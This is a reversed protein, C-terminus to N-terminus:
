NYAAKKHNAIKLRVWRGSKPGFVSHLGLPVFGRGLGDLDLVLSGRGGGSLSFPGRRLWWVLLGRWGLHWLRCGVHGVFLVTPGVVAEIAKKLLWRRWASGASLAKRQEM